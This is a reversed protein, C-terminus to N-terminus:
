GPQLGPASSGNESTGATMGSTRKPLEVWTTPASVNVKGGPMPQTASVVRSTEVLM